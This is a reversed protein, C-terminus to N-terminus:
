INDLLGGNGGGFKVANFDMLNNQPTLASTNNNLSVPWYGGTTNQKTANLKIYYAHNQLNHAFIDM